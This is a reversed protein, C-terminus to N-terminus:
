AKRRRRGIGAFSLGILSWVILSSPEPVPSTTSITVNDFQHAPSSPGGGGQFWNVSVLNNFGSFTFAKLTLFGDVTFTNTTVSSDAKTGYFTVDFPGLDVPRGDTDGGPHEALEISLLDFLGGGVQELVTEGLSNGHTLATSGAFQMALTGFTRFRPQSGPANGATFLFGDEIYTDVDPIIPHQDTLQQLVEFDVVVAARGQEVCFLAPVCFLILRKM